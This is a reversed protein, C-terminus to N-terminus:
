TTALLQLYGIVNRAISRALEFPVVNAVQLPQESHPGLFRFWDPLTQIRAAERVTITRHASPHVPMARHGAVITRATDWTLRRYSLPGQGPMIGRIKKVVPESHEMARHNHLVEENIMFRGNHGTKPRPLGRLADAVTPPKAKLNLPTPAVVELGLRARLGVFLLRRRHQPVGFDHSDVEFAKVRYDLARFSRLIRSEFPVGNVRRLGPVNEMVVVAADVGAAIRAVSRYLFNQRASPKRSGAASFGQCPPGSIVVSVEGKSCGTMALVTKSSIHRVDAEIVQVGPNNLRYSQAAHREKEVALIVRLGEQRFAASLSGAGSCLDVVLARGLASRLIAKTGLSCFSVLSCSDCQPNSAKCRIEAHDALKGFFSAADGGGRQSRYFAVANASDRAPFGLRRFVRLVDDSLEDDGARIRVKPAEKTYIAVLLEDCRQLASGADLKFESYKRRKTEKRARLM